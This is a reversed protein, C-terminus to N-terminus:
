LCLFVFHLMVTHSLLHYVYNGSPRLPNIFGAVKEALHSPVPTNVFYVYQKQSPSGIADSKTTYDQNQM